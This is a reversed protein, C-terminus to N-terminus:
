RNEEESEPEPQEPGDSRAGDGDSARRDGVRREIRSLGYVAGVLGAAAAGVVWHLAVFEVATVFAVVGIAVAALFAAVPRVATWTRALDLALLGTLGAAVLVTGPTTPDGGLGAVLVAGVVFTIETRLYLWCALLGVGAAIGVRGGGLGLGAGAVGAVLFESVRQFPDSPRDVPSYRGDTVSAAAPQSSM